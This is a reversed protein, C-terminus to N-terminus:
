LGAADFYIQQHLSAHSPAKDEQIITDPRDIQCEIGFPILIPLLITTLYRYWDIGGKKGNRQFAGNKETMRFQPKRGRKNRLGARRMGTTLEWADRLEPEIAENIKQLEIESAKKERATEPRWIHCPAKRDYSFANWFMFETAKPFRPRIAQKNVREKALRWLKYGGKRHGLVIGTEDSWIVNKWDDITWHEYRLAFQLRAEKMEQSLCPKRTPKTKRYGHRQLVRWVTQASCGCEAAIYACSKERGFRDSTVKKLIRQEFEHTIKVKSGTHPADIVYGDLIRPHASPDWSRSRARKFIYQLTRRKIETICQIHELTAGMAKMALAQARTALQYFVM